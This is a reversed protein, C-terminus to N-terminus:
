FIASLQRNHGRRQSSNCLRFVRVFISKKLQIAAEISRRFRVLELAVGALRDSLLDPLLNLICGSSRAARIVMASSDTAITEISNNLERASGRTRVNEQCSLATLALSIAKKISNVCGTSECLTSFFKVM